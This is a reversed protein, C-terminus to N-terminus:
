QNATTGSTARPLTLTFRAGGLNSTSCVLSGGHALAVDSAIALGLGAGGSDRDRAEDLRTFRDFIHLREAEPVGPGDDDVAVTIHEASGTLSLTVRTEAHRCANDLLNRVARGLLRHDGEVVFTQDLPATLEVAPLRPRGLEESLVDAINIDRPASLGAEDLRSLALLDDILHSLHAQEALVTAGTAEWDTTHPNASAVELQARSAAVPSRLEHSADAILQRQQRTSADLRSLMDNVTIALARIEDRAHPVPLRQDLNSASIEQAQRTVANVPALARTAALWTIAGIAAILTPVAVLLLSKMTDISDSVPQLPSSVGVNFTTGDEGVLTQSVAVVEPGLDVPQPEGVSVPGAVFTVAVGRQDFLLGSDPEVLLGDLFPDNAGAPVLELPVADGPLAGNAPLNDPGTGAVDFPTAEQTMTVDLETFSPDFGSAILRFYEAETLPNGDADNYFFQTGVQDDVVGVAAVGGNISGLYDTLVAEASARTDAVLSKEIQRIAVVSLVSIALGFTLTVFVVLRTKLGLNRM